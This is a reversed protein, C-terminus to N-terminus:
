YAVIKEVFVGESSQVRILYAPHNNGPSIQLQDGHRSSHFIRQGSLNFVSVIEDGKLRTIELLQSEDSYKIDFYKSLKLVSSSTNILPNEVPDPNQSLYIDDVALGSIKGGSMTFINGCATLDLGNAVLGEMPIILQHWNGDRIFGFPDSGNQFTVEGRTDNAGHIAINFTESSKSNLSLHLYGNDFDSFNLPNDSFIGWGWWGANGQSRFSLVDEGEYSPILNNFSVTNDWNYLHGNVNDIAFKESIQPNNTYIGYLGSVPETESYIVEDISLTAGISSTGRIFLMVKLADMHVKSALASLKVSVPQWTNNREIDQGTETSLTIFAENNLTDSIGIIIPDESDTKLYFQISGRTYNDMNRPMLPSLSIEYGQGATLNFSLAESGGAPTETENKAVGSTEVELDYGESLFMDTSITEQYIGYNGFILLATTAFDEKGTQQYVKVWDIYMNAPLSATVGSVNNIGPLSGGVAMNLLIYHQFNRFEETDDGTIEMSFYPTPSDNFYVSILSETWVVTHKFFGSSLDYPATFEGGYDRPYPGWFLHSGIFSNQQGAAIGASHGMELIDIEGCDPWGTSTYGLTWFAPWLGNALDPIKVMAELKGRRFAFKGKTNVRGSTFHYGRYDEKKATLILCNNGQGDDGVSVNEKRYHQLERNGGTNWIGEKQEINWKESDISNGDFNDEWVLIYSQAAVKMFPMSLVIFALVFIRIM